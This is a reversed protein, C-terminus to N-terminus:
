AFVLAASIALAAFMALVLTLVAAVGRQDPSLPAFFAAVRGALAMPLGARWLDKVAQPGGRDMIEQVQGMARAVPVLLAQSQPKHPPRGAVASELAQRMAIRDAAWLARFVIM